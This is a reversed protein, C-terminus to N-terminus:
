VLVKGICDFAQKLCRPKVLTKESLTDQFTRFRPKESFISSKGVNKRSFFPDLFTPKAPVQSYLFYDIPRCIHIMIPSHQM